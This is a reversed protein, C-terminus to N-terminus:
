RKLRQKLAQRREALDQATHPEQFGKNRPKNQPKKIIQPQPGKGGGRQWNAAQVTVLIAALFEHDPTWWWSDPHQERYLASEGTPPLHELFM